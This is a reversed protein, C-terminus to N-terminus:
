SCQDSANRTDSNFRRCTANIKTRNWSRYGLIHWIGSPNCGNRKAYTVAIRGNRKRAVARIRATNRATNRIKPPLRIRRLRLFWRLLHRFADTNWRGNARQCRFLKHNDTSKGRVKWQAKAEAWGGKTGSSIATEHQTWQCHTASSPRFLKHTTPDRHLRTLM